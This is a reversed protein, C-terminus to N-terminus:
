DPSEQDELVCEKRCSAFVTRNRGTRKAEYLAKDAAEMLLAPSSGEWPYATALGLSMTVFDVNDVISGGHPISLRAVAAVIEKAMAAVGDQGTDPLVAAFEEGGYRAVFDGPRKVARSLAEAIARLCADGELHGYLDNYAKFGDIDAMIVSLPQKKRVARKWESPLTEDLYRRNNIGTLGDLVSMSLLRRNAQELDEKIALLEAVKENLMVRHRHLELFIGVKGLLIHPNLPKSLFDVGGSQYAKYVNQDDHDAATLFIIPMNKTDPQARFLAALEYGDMGPMRVDVIALAFSNNLAARLAEQGSQAKILMVGLSGLVSELAALNEPRDDVLLIKDKDAM